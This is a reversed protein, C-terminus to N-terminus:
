RCSMIVKLLEQLYPVIMHKKFCYDGQLPDMEVKISAVQLGVPGYSALALIMLGLVPFALMGM